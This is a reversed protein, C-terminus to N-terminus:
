KLFCLSKRIQNLPESVFLARTHSHTHGKLILVDGTFNFKIRCFLAAQRDPIMKPNQYLVIGSFKM